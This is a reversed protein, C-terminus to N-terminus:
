ILDVHYMSWSLSYHTDLVMEVLSESLSLVLKGLKHSGCPIDVYWSVSYTAM